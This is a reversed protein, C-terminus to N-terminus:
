GYRGAAAALMDRVEAALRAQISRADPTGALEDAVRGPLTLLPVRIGALLREWSARAQEVDLLERRRVANQWATKEAQEAALRARQADLDRVQRCVQLHAIVRSMRWRRDAGRGTTRVDDAPLNMLRRALTRRDLGLEVALASLSWLRPTM